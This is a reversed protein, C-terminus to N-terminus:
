TQSRFVMHHQLHFSQSLFFPYSFRQVGRTFSQGTFSTPRPAEHFMWRGMDPSVFSRALSGGFFLQLAERRQQAFVFRKPSSAPKNRVCVTYNLVLDDFLLRQTGCSWMIAQHQFFLTNSVDAIVLVPLEWFVVFLRTDMDDTSRVYFLLLSSFHLRHFCGRGYSTLAGSCWLQRRTPTRAHRQTSIRTEPEMKRHGVASRAPSLSSLQVPLRTPFFNKPNM